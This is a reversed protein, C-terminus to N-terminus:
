DDIEKEFELIKGTKAHIKVDYEYKGEVMDIEYVPVGDDKDFEAKVITANPAKEQAISKAKEVGIYKSNSSDAKQLAEWEYELLAGTKSNYVLKYKTSGKSLKVKYQSMGDDKKLRISIVKANKVKKKAKDEITKESLDEKSQDGAAPNQIEWGYELLKGDSARYKLAYEKDNKSLEVDYVLVGNEMDTDVEIVTASPVKKLAAEKADAASKMKKAGARMANGAVLIVTLLLYIVIINKITKKM